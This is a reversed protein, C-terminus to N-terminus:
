QRSHFDNRADDCAERAEEYSYGDDMMKDICSKSSNRCSTTILTATITLVLLTKRKM